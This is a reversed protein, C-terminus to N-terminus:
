RWDEGDESGVAAPRLFVKNGTGHLEPSNPGVSRPGPLQPGPVSARLDPINGSRPLSLRPLLPSYIRLSFPPHFCM